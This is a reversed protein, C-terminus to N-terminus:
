VQLPVFRSFYQPHAKPQMCFEAPATKSALNKM